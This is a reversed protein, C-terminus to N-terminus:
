PTMGRAETSLTRVVGYAILAQGAFYLPWILQGALSSGAMPGMRAFILLDSALFLMAGMGTRYRPFRSTWAAAAMGSVFFAYLAVAVMKDSPVLSVGIFVSAPVVLAALMRQSFSIRSRWNRFYLLMAVIHGVVFAEAGAELRWEILVDGLAGFAMVAAILWGDFSRANMVCWLAILAVGLGKWAVHAAGMVGLPGALVFSAGAILAAAFVASRPLTATMVARYGL